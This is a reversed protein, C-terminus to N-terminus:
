AGADGLYGREERMDSVSVGDGNCAKWRVAPYKGYFHQLSPPGTNGKSVDKFDIVQGGCANKLQLHLADASLGTRAEDPMIPMSLLFQLCPDGTRLTRDLLGKTWLDGYTSFVNHDPSFWKAGEHEKGFVLRLSYSAALQAYRPSYLTRLWLRKDSDGRGLWGPFVTECGTSANREVRAPDSAWQLNLPRLEIGEVLKPIHCGISDCYVDDNAPESAVVLLCAVVILLQLCNMKKQCTNHLVILTLAFNEGSVSMKLSKSM